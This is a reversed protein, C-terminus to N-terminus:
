PQQVTPQLQAVQNKYVRQRTVPADDARRRGQMHGLRHRSSRQLFEFRDKTHRQIFATRAADSRRGDPFGEGSM